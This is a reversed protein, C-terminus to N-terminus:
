VTYTYLLKIKLLLALAIITICTCTTVYKIQLTFFYLTKVRSDRVLFYFSFCTSLPESIFFFYGTFTLQYVIIDTHAHVKDVMATLIGVLSGEKWSCRDTDKPM